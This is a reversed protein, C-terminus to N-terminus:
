SFKVHYIDLWHIDPLSWKVVSWKGGVGAKYQNHMKKTNLWGDPIGCTQISYFMKNQGGTWSSFYLVYKSYLFMYFLFISFWSPHIAQMAFFNVLKHMFINNALYSQLINSWTNSGLYSYILWCYGCMSKYFPMFMHLNFNHRNFSSICSILVCCLWTYLLTSSPKVSFENIPLEQKKSNYIFVHKYLYFRICM